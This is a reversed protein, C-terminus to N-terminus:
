MVYDVLSLKTIMSTTALVAQYTTQKTQLEAVAATVDLDEIRSMRETSNVQTSDLVNYTFQNRTLRVGVKSMQTTLKELAQDLRPLEEAIKETDYSRLAFELRALADLINDTAGAQGLAEEGTVNVKVRTQQNVNLYLDQDDGQYYGVEITFRDGTRLASGDDSFSIKVGQDGPTVNAIGGSLDQVQMAPVLGTGDSKVDVKDATVLNSGANVAAIVDNITSTVAGTVDTALYVTMTGTSPDDDVVTLPQSVAGPDVFRVKLDNGQEGTLKSTFIIENGTGLQDTVLTARGYYDNWIATQKASATYAATGWTKGGDESVRYTAAGDIGGKTSFLGTGPADEGPLNATTAVKGQGSNSPALSATVLASTGPNSNVANVVDQATAAVNGAGDAALDVTIVPPPGPVTVSATTVGAGTNVYEIQIGDGATGVTDSTFVVGNNAGSPDITVKSMSGGDVGGDTVIEAVFVKSQVPVNALAQYTRSSTPPSVVKGTFSSSNTSVTKADQILLSESFAQVDTRSGSFLYQDGMKANGMKVLAAFLDAVENAAVDLNKEQYTDTSMQEGVVSVEDVLNKMNQIISETNGLWDDALAVNKNYQEVGALITRMNLITAGGAPDDSPKNVKKGTAMQNNIQALDWSLRGLNTTVNQFLSRLSIRYLM